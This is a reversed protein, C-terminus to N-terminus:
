GRNYSGSQPLASPPPASAPKNEQKTVRSALTAQEIAFRRAEDCEPCSM